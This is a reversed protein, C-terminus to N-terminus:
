QASEGDAPAAPAARLVARGLSGSVQGGTAWYGSHGGNKVVVGVAVDKAPDFAVYWVHPDAGEAHEATGTKSAFGNGDYGWTARESAFMLNTLTDAEEPTLAEALQKPKTEKVTRLDSTVVRNVVYPRMRKGENAVVGAMVAAQLATMTVDRQGIASQGLEAAGPIDGLSGAANPVGLEMLDYREGVGFDAAAKRLPDAGMNLAMQVFATNCSSSFATTLTVQGGGACAQGGFNTLPVNTGPLIIQADGTLPSDPTYGSRLGAVTTIIKFISGPPLQDQAAHNLLPQRPDNNLQGWAEAATAPNAIQNPDFSPTSAMALVQGSSPRLAVIAGNYGNNSLQEYAFAQLNPDMSLEVSNGVADEEHGTRMFRSNGQGDGTLAGNYASEVQSTGYTDSVYGVIPGFSYPMNPYTRQYFGNDDRHSEALVQGGASIQGRNIQKLELFTRSNHPSQAYEDERFNQVVTFNVLLAVTLLLSLIAGYKLSKNM